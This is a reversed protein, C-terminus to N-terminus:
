LALVEQAMRRAAIECYREEVEIGISRIGLDKAARLTTGSGMFPDLVVDGQEAAWGVVGRVVTETKPCPHGKALTNHRSSTGEILCDRGMHGGKPGHYSAEGRSAWIIPEWSYAPHGGKWLDGAFERKFWAGLHHIEFGGPLCASSEGNAVRIGQWFWVLARASTGTAATFCERLYDRYDTEDLRDNYSAYRYGVNYPPDTVVVHAGLGDVMRCDGHYITVMGDDYYPDM